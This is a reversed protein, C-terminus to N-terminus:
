ARGEQGREGLVTTGIRLADEYRKLALGTEQQLAFLEANSKRLLHAFRASWLLDDHAPSEHDRMALKRRIADM